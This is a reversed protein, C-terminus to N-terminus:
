RDDEIVVRRIPGRPTSELPTGDITSVAYGLIKWEQSDPDHTRQRVRWVTRASGAIERGLLDVVVDCPHGRGEKLIRANKDYSDMAAATQAASGLGEYEDLLDHLKEVRRRIVLQCERWRPDDDVLQAASHDLALNKSPHASSPSSQGMAAAGVTSLKAARDIAQRHLDVTSMADRDRRRRTANESKIRTWRTASREVIKSESIPDIREVEDHELRGGVPRQQRRYRDLAIELQHTNRDARLLQSFLRPNRDHIQHATDISRIVALARQSM